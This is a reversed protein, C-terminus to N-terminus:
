SMRFHLLKEPPTGSVGHVRLETLVGVASNSNVVEGSAM